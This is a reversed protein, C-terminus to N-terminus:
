SSQLFPAVKGSVAFHIQKAFGTPRDVELGGRKTMPPQMRRIAEIKVPNGEIGRETIM